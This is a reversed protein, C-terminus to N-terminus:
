YRSIMGGITDRGDRNEAEDADENEDQYQGKRQRAQDDADPQNLVPGPRAHTPNNKRCEIQQAKGEM